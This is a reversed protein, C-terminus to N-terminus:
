PSVPPPVAGTRKQSRPATTLRVMPLRVVSGPVNRSSPAPGGIKEVDTGPAAGANSVPPRGALDRRVSWQRLVFAGLGLAAVVLLAELAKKM